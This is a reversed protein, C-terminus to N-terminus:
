PRVSSECARRRKPAGFFIEVDDGFFERLQEVNPANSTSHWFLATTPHHIATRRDGLTAFSRDDTLLPRRIWRGLVLRTDSPTFVRAHSGSRIVRRKLQIIMGPAFWNTRGAWAAIIFAYIAAIGLTLFVLWASQGTPDQLIRTIILVGAYAFVGTMVLSGGVIFVFTIFERFPKRKVVKQSAATQYEFHKELGLQDTSVQGRRKLHVPVFVGGRAAWHSAITRFDRTLELPESHVPTPDVLWLDFPRNGVFIAPGPPLGLKAPRCFRLSTLWKMLYAELVRHPLRTMTDPHQAIRRLRELRLAYRQRFRRRQWRFVLFWLSVSVIMLGVMLKEGAGDQFLRWIGFAWFPLAILVVMGIRLLENPPKVNGMIARVGPIPHRDTGTQGMVEEHWEASLM